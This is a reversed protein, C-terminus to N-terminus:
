TTGCRRQEATETTETCVECLVGLLWLLSIGHEVTEDADSRVEFSVCFCYYGQGGNQSECRPDSKCATPIYLFIEATTM